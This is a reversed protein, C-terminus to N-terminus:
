APDATKEEGPEPRIALGTVFLAGDGLTTVLRLAVVLGIAIANDYVPVLAALLVAERVGLGGPAGPMLFGLVWAVAYIGTLLLVESSQVDFLNSALLDLMLGMLLFNGSYLLCCLAVVPIAPRHFASNGSFRRWREALFALLMRTGFWVAGCLGVGTLALAWGAPLHLSDTLLEPAAFTITFGGLMGAVAVVAATEVAITMIVRPASYGAACALGVRSIHQGVNGPLYKAIQALLWIRFVQRIGPTEGIARLLRHWAFGSTIASAAYVAM